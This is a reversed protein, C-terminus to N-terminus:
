DNKNAELANREALFALKENAEKLQKRATLEAQIARECETRIQQLEKVHEDFITCIDKRSVSIQEGNTGIFTINIAHKGLKLIGNPGFTSFFWPKEAM